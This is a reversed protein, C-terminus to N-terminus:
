ADAPSRQLWPTKASYFSRVPTGSALFEKKYKWWLAAYRYFPIMPYLHHVNHYNQYLLPISLKWGGNHGASFVGDILSTTRYQDQTRQIHHPRHPVYDFSYALFTVAIREPLLWYCWMYGFLGIRYLPYLSGYLLVLVTVASISELLPRKGIAKLYPIYYHLEQTAWRLPLLIGITDGSYFDPDKEADNTYKHHQLHVYRFAPYPAFFVLSALWGITTNLWRHKSSISMHSADHLPTFLAYTCLTSLPLTTYLSSGLFVGRYASYIWGSAATAFLVLTPWAVSPVKVDLPDVQVRSAGM